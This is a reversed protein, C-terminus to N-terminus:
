SSIFITDNQPWFNIFSIFAGKLYAGEKSNVGGRAKDSVLYVGRASIRAKVNCLIHGM